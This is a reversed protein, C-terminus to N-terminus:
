RVALLVREVRFIHVASEPPVLLGFLVLFHKLNHPVTKIRANDIISKGKSTKYYTISGGYHNVPARASNIIHGSHIALATSQTQM